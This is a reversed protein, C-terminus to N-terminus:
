KEVNVRVSFGIGYFEAASFMGPTDISVRAVIKREKFSAPPKQTPSNFNIRGVGARIFVIKGKLKKGSSIVEITVPLGTRLDNAYKESFYADVWISNKDIVEFLPSAIKKYESSRTIVSWIVGEFSSKGKEKKFLELQATIDSLDKSTNQEHQTKIKLLSEVRDLKTKIRELEVESASKASVLAAFRRYEKKYDIRELELGKRDAVLSNLQSKLSHYQAVSEINGYRSNNVTYVVSGKKIPVGPRILPSFTVYGPISNRLTVINTNIVGDDSTIQTLNRAVILVILIGCTLILLIKKIPYKHM